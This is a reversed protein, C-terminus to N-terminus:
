RPLLDRLPGVDLGRRQLEGVIADVAAPGAAAVDQEVNQRLVDIGYWVGIVVAAIPLLVSALLAFGALAKPRAAFLAILALVFLVAAGGLAMLFTTVQGQVGALPDGSVLEVSALIQYTLMGLLGSVALACVLVLGAFLQGRRRPRREAPFTERRGRRDRHDDRYDAEYDDRYDERYDEAHDRRYDVRGDDRYDDRYDGQYDGAAAPEHVPYHRTPQPQAPFRVTPAEASRPDTPYAVTPRPPAGRAPPGWHSPESM